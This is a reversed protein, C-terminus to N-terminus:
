SGNKATGDDDVGQEDEVVESKTELLNDFIDKHPNKDNIINYTIQIKNSPKPEKEKDLGMVIRELEIGTKIFQLIEMPRLGALDPESNIFNELKKLSEKGINHLERATEEQQTIYKKRQEIKAKFEEEQLMQDYFKAREKWKNMKALKAMYIYTRNLNKATQTLSRSGDQRLYECFIEFARPTEQPLRKTVYNELDTITDNSVTVAKKPRGGVSKGAKEGKVFM